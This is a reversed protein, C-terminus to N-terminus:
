NFSTFNKFFFFYRYVSNSSLKIHNYVQFIRSAYFKHYVKVQIESEASVQQLVWDSSRCSLDLVVGYHFVSSKLLNMLKAKAGGDMGIINLRSGWTGDNHDLGCRSSAASSTNTSSTQSQGGEQSCPLGDDENWTTNPAEPQNANNRFMVGDIDGAKILISKAMMLKPVRRVFFKFSSSRSRKVTSTRCNTKAGTSTNAPCVNPTRPDFTTGCKQPLSVEDDCMLLTAANIHKYTKLFNIILSEDIETRLVKDACNGDFSPRPSESRSGIPENNSPVTQQPQNLHLLHDMREDDYDVNDSVMRSADHYNKSPSLRRHGTTVSNCMMLPVVTM